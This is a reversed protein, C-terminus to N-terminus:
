RRRFAPVAWLLRRLRFRRHGARTDNQPVRYELASSVWGIAKRLERLDCAGYRRGLVSVTGSTPWEYGTLVKLLTTKGSGNAGLLTWHQGREISWNVRTLIEHEGRCLSVDKLEVLSMNRKRGVGEDGILPVFSCRVSREKKM